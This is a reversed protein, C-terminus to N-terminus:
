DAAINSITSPQIIPLYRKYHDQVIAWFKDVVSQMEAGELRVANTGEVGSSHLEAVEVMHTPEYYVDNRVIVDTREIARKPNAEGKDLGKAM